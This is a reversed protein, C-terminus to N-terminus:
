AQVIHWLEGGPGILHIERLGWPMMEPPRPPRVGFRAPLDLAEIHAWWADLDAVILQMMFNNAYDESWFDQLLFEHAGHRFGVVDGADFIQEFGLVAYFAKSAAFDKGGPVFTRIMSSALTM